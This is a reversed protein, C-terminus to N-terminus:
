TMLGLVACFMGDGAGLAAASGLGIGGTSRGSRPPQQIAQSAPQPQYGLPLKLAHADGCQIHPCLLFHVSSHRLSNSGAKSPGRRIGQTRMIVVVTPSRTQTHRRSIPVSIRPTVRTAPTHVGLIRHTRNHRRFHEPRAAVLTTVVVLARPILHHRTTVPRLLRLHGM